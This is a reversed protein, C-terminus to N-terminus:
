EHYDRLIKQKVQRGAEWGGLREVKRDGFREAEGPQV